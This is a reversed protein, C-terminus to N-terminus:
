LADFFDHFKRMQGSESYRRKVLLRAREGLEAYEDLDAISMSNILSIIDRTDSWDFAWGIDNDKVVRYIESDRPGVFLIPKGAAMLNYTKSPVGLGYMNAGLLVLAVDCSALISSQDSRSFAREISFNPFDKVKDSLQKKLAGSGRFVFRIDSNEVTSIVNIFDLIGQARGINGAYQIVVLESLRPMIKKEGGKLVLNMLAPDAWNEILAISDNTKKSKCSVIEAMDRGIVVISDAAGYAWDFLHKILPYFLSEKRIIGAAVANEPFVDHVLLVLSFSKLKRVLALVLLLPAPNTVAFVIDGDRSKVLARWGLGISFILYRAIRAALKNKNLSPAWAREIKIDININDSIPRAADSEYSEPGTLVLVDFRDKLNKALSTLVHATSTEEPFFLETM